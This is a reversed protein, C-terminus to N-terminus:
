RWNRLAEGCISTVEEATAARPEASVWELGLPWYIRAHETDERFVRRCVTVTGNEYTTRHVEDAKMRYSDGAGLVEDPKAALRVACIDQAGKVSPAPGCIIRGEHHTANSHPWGPADEDFSAEARRVEYRTNCVIGCIVLSEFDWPHDHIDSVDKVRFRSDWVHLRIERSLYTRLMGMGQLSWGLKTPNKLLGKVLHVLTEVVVGKGPDFRVMESEDNM